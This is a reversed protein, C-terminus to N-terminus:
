RELSIIDFKVNTTLYKEPIERRKGYSINQETSKEMDVQSIEM